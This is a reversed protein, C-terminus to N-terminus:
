FVLWLLTSFNKFCFKDSRNAAISSWVPMLGNKMWFQKYGLNINEGDSAKYEMLNILISTSSLTGFILKRFIKQWIIMPTIGVMWQQELLSDSFKPIKKRSHNWIISLHVLSDM